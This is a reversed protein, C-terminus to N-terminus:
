SKGMMNPIDDDWSVKVGDNKLPTPHVVLCIPNFPSKKHIFKRDEGSKHSVKASKIRSAGHVLMKHSVNGLVQPRTFPFSGSVVHYLKLFAYFPNTQFYAVWPVWLGLPNKCIKRIQGPKLAIKLCV